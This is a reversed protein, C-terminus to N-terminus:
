CQLFSKNKFVSRPLSCRTSLFRHLLRLDKEPPGSNTLAARLYDVLSVRVKERSGGKPFVFCLGERDLHKACAKSRAILEYLGQAASRQPDSPPFFRDLAHSDDPDTRPRENRRPSESLPKCTGRSLANTSWGLLLKTCDFYFYSKLSGRLEHAKESVLKINADLEDKPPNFQSLVQKIIPANAPSCTFIIYHFLPMFTFVGTKFVTHTVCFVKCRKHHATYNVVERLARQERDKMSIIDEVILTSNPLVGKLGDISTQKVRSARGPHLEEYQQTEDGRVNVLYLHRSSPMQRVLRKLLSSKGTGSRGIILCSGYQSDNLSPDNDALPKGTSLEKKRGSEFKTRSRPLVRFPPPTDIIPPACHTSDYFFASYEDTATAPNHASRPKLPEFYDM